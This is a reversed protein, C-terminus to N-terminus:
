DNETMRSEFIVQFIALLTFSLDKIGIEECFKECKEHNKELVSLGPPAHKLQYSYNLFPKDQFECDDEKPPTQPEDVNDFPSKKVDDRDYYKSWVQGARRSTDIRDSALGDTYWIAAEYASPGMGSGDVSAAKSVIKASNCPDHSENWTIGAKVIPEEYISDYILINHIDAEKHERVLRYIIEPDYIILLGSNEPSGVVCVALGANAAKLTPSQAEQLLIERILRRIMITSM